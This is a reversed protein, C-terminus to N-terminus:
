PAVPAAPTAPEAAPDAPTPAAPEVSGPADEGPLADWHVHGTWDDVTVSLEVTQGDDLALTCPFVSAPEAARITGHCDVKGPAKRAALQEVLIAELKDLLVVGKDSYEYAATDDTWTVTVPLRSGGELTAVCEFQVGKKPTSSACEVGDIKAQYKRALGEAILEGMRKSVAGPGPQTEWTFSDDDTWEVVVPLREGGALVAECKTVEGEKGDIGDPCEVATVKQDLKKALQKELTKELKKQKTDGCSVKCGGSPSVAVAVLVVLVPGSLLSGRLHTM